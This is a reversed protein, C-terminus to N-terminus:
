RQAQDRDMSQAWKEVERRAWDQSRGLRQAQARSIEDARAWSEAACHPNWTGRQERDRQVELLAPPPVRGAAQARSIHLAMEDDNMDRYRAQAEVTEHIEYVHDEEM